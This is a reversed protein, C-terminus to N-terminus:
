ELNISIKKGIVTAVKCMTALTISNNNEDLIKNLFSRSSNIKLAMATKNINNEKMYKELAAALVKKIAAAQVEEFNCKEILFADFSSGLPSIKKENM